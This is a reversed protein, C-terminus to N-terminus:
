TSLAITSPLAHSVLPQSLPQFFVEHLFPTAILRDRSLRGHSLLGHSL